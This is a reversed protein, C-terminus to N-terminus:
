LSRVGRGPPPPVVIVLKQVLDVVVVALGSRHENLVAMVPEPLPDDEADVAAFLRAGLGAAIVEGVVGGNAVQAAAVASAAALVYKRRRVYVEFALVHTTLWGPNHKRLRRM